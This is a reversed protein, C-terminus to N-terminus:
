DQHRYVDRIECLLPVFNSYYSLGEPSRFILEKLVKELEDDRSLKMEIIFLDAFTFFIHVYLILLRKRM